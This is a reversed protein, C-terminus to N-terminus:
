CYKRVIGFSMGTLRSVQRISGGSSLLLQLLSTKKDEPLAQFQSVNKCPGQEELIRKLQGDSIRRGPKETIDMCTDEVAKENFLIFEDKGLLGLAFDSDIMSSDFYHPFSSYPYEGPDNCLGAKVPNRHIYRLATLFYADDEVAESKYRDQYLHGSREYKLNYWYVFSTGLRRFVTSLSEKGERILIHIHNPMLCYAYIEYGCIAKYHDLLFLFREYDEEDEFIRQRNIGRLIVHYIGTSSPQRATRSMFM